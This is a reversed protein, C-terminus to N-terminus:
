HYVGTIGNKAVAINFTRPRLFIIEKIFIGYTYVTVPDSQNDPGEKSLFLVLDLTIYM